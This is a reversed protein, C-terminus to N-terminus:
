SGYLQRRGGARAREVWILFSLMFLQRKLIYNWNTQFNAEFLVLNTMDIAKSDFGEEIFWGMMFRFRAKTKNIKNPYLRGATAVSRGPIPFKRRGCPIVLAS